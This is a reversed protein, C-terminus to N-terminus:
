QSKAKQPASLLYLYGARQVAATASTAVTQINSVPRRKLPHGYIFDVSIQSKQDGIRTDDRNASDMSNALLISRKRSWGEGGPCAYYKLAVQSVCEALM